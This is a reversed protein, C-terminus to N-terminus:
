LGDRCYCVEELLAMGVRVLDCRRTTGSGPGLMNLSGCQCLFFCEKLSPSPHPLILRFGREEGLQKKTM